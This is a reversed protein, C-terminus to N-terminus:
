PVIATGGCCCRPYRASARCRRKSRRWIWSGATWFASFIPSPGPFACLALIASWRAAASVAADGYMRGLALSQVSAPVTPVRGAFWRGLATRYFRILSGGRRLLPKCPRAPDPQAGTGSSALGADAGGVRRPLHRRYGGARYGKCGHARDSAGRDSELQCGASPCSRIRRNGPRGSRLRHLTCDAGTHRTGVADATGLLGHLLLLSPGDGSILCRMRAKQVPVFEETERPEEMATMWNALSM